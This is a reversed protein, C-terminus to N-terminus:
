NISLYFKRKSAAKDASTKSNDLKYPINARKSLNIYNMNLRQQKVINMAIKFNKEVLRTAEDEISKGPFVELFTEAVIRNVIKALRQKLDKDIEPHKESSNEKNKM